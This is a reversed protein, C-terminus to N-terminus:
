GEVILTQPKLSEVEKTAETPIQSQAQALSLVFQRLIQNVLDTAFQISTDDLNVAIGNYTWVQSFKRAEEKSIQPILVQQQTM